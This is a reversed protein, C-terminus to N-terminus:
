LGWWRWDIRQYTINTLLKYICCILKTVSKRNSQSLSRVSQSISEYKQFKTIRITYKLQKNIVFARDALIDSFLFFYRRSMFFCSHYVLTTISLNAIAFVHCNAVVRIWKLEEITMVEKVDGSDAPDIFGGYVQVSIALIM